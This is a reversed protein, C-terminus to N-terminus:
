IRQWQEAVITHTGWIFNNFSNSFLRIAQLSGYGGSQKPNIWWGASADWIKIHNRRVVVACGEHYILDEDLWFDSANETEWKIRWQATAATSFQQVLQVPFSQVGRMKFIENALAALAGCDLEPREVAECWHIQWNNPGWKFKQRIWRPGTLVDANNLLSFDMAFLWERATECCIQGHHSLRSVPFDLWKEFVPNSKIQRIKETKVADLIM